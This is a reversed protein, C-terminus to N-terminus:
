SAIFLTWLMGVIAVRLDGLVSPLSSASYLFIDNHAPAVSLKFVHEKLKMETQLSHTEIEDLYLLNM